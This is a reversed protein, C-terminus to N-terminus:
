LLPFDIPLKHDGVVTYNKTIEKIIASSAEISKRIAGFFDDLTKYILEEPKVIPSNYDIILGYVISRKPQNNEIEIKAGISVIKGIAIGDNHIFYVADGINFKPEFTLEM